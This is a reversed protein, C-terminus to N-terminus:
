RSAQMQQMMRAFGANMSEFREDLEGRSARILANAQAFSAEPVDAWLQKIIADAFADLDEGFAHSGGLHTKVAPPVVEIVKIPTDRLQYRLSQSFSHLAAKTACYIPMPTLPAFGLASSVNVIRPTDQHMLYPVLLMSLHIPGGLNIEIESAIEEWPAPARLDVRRQIGANNILINLPPFDAVISRSLALRQEPVGVDSVITHLGPIKAQVEHLADARRGTVIVENGAAAFRQALAMGIGSAGGTILVTNGNEKM